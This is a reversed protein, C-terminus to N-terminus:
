TPVPNPFSHLLGAAQVALDVRGRRSVALRWPREPFGAAGALWTLFASRVARHFAQAIALWEIRMVDDRRPDNLRM